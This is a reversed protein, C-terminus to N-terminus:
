LTAPTEMFYLRINELLHKKRRKLTEVITLINCYMEMGSEKRFGGAMKERNKVKRLDRESMNNDFPVEFDNLFLLHNEKYKELRNLLANENKKAYRYRTKKNERRGEGIIEEYRTEYRILEEESFSKNGEKIAEKRAKNMGCLFSAMKSSWKHGTEETNKKLYRIVHVNCEGHKTGFHYLSTEHDHVLSGTFRALFSQKELEKLSKNRMARYVVTDKISFNRVYHQTGDVTSTTADTMVVKSSLLEEELAAVTAAANRSFERCFNYVSGESLRLWGEGLANIFEAIRDNSIVGESYLDVAIARINPGYIVSSRYEEPIIFKGNPAAHARVETIKLCVELDVIYRSVYKGSSADGIDIVEHRCSGSKIKERVEDATMTCGHHGKQAGAHRKTRSRGNYENARKANASPKQATSPPNSTNSSNNNIISKLRATEDILLKNEEKLHKNEKELECVEAELKRIKEGSEAKLREIQREYKQEIKLIKDEYKQDVAELRAMVDMLQNYIGKEYNGGM